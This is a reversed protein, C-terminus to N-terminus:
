EVGALKKLAPILLTIPAQTQVTIMASVLTGPTVRQNPGKSSSWKLGSYTKPDNFLRVRVAIPAKEGTFEKVLAQNQLAALIGESTAPFTSVSIVTGNISGYEAKEVTTPSVLVPMNPKIRKGNEPPFYVLADLGHGESAISVLPAGTNVISGEAAETDTVIGTIPSQVDSSLNLRTQLGALKLQEDTIKLDLDRLREQWQDIFNASDIDLQILEKTYGEIESKVNYYDQLTQEVDQKTEIGRKLADERLALFAELHKFKENSADLVRQLSQKQQALEAQRAAIEQASLAALQQRKDQLDLLYKKTDNIEDILDPRSLTAVVQNKVVHDGPKVNITTVHSPGDPAVADYIDGGSALLIGPGEVRTPISGFISWLLVILLIAYLTGAILWSRPTVVQILQDLQDPSTFQKLAAERYKPTNAM